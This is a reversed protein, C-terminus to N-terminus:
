TRGISVYRTEMGCPVILVVAPHVAQVTVITTEMGCPVILVNRYLTREIRNGHKWEM